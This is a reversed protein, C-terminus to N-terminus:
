TQPGEHPADSPNAPSPGYPGQCVPILMRPPPFMHTLCLLWCFQTTSVGAQGQEEPTCVCGRGPLLCKAPLRLIFLGLQFGRTEWSHQNSPPKKPWQSLFSSMTMSISFYQDPKSDWKTHCICATAQAVQAPCFNCPDCTQTGTCPCSSPDRPLSWEEAATPLHWAEKGPSLYDEPHPVVQLHWM